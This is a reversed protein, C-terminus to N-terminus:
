WPSWARIFSDTLAVASAREVERAWTALALWCTEWAAPWIAAELWATALPAEWCAALRSCVWDEVEVRAVVVWRVASSASCALERAFSPRSAARRPVFTTAFICPAMSRIRWPASRVESMRFSMLSIAKWVLRSASLAATSAARAPSAPRPKATTASSTRDRAKRAFSAAARVSPRTFSDTWSAKSPSAVERSTASLSRSM